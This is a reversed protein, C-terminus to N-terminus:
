TITSDVITGQPPNEYREGAIADLEKSVIMFAMKIDAENPFTSKAQKVQTLEQGKVHGINGEGVGGQYIIVREPLRNNPKYYEQLGKKM